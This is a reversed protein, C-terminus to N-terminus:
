TGPALQLRLIAGGDPASEITVTGHHADAIQKVISLGLGAGPMGRAASSRYFRNFVLPRDEEAIGPGRDRVEVLGDHVAVDVTSNAPSWKRANDLLNSVAREVREPVGTVLSPELRTRFSVEPSRRATRDVASRVIEDLRFESPTLDPEEGRALEVLEGVLTTMSELEERVDVILEAREREDLSGPEALLEVNARVTTIPTRLEHSADAVLQRQTRLSSELMALLEDLRTSLRSIEDRGRQGTRRSLDGTAVIDETTATLRRLPALARGSVLAGLLVAAGIGGISILVLLWRLHALNRDVGVLSASLHVVANSTAFSLVRSHVGGVETTAFGLAQGPPGATGRRRVEIQVLTLSQPVVIKGAGRRLRLRVTANSGTVKFGPPPGKLADTALKVGPLSRSANLESDVQGIMQGRDVYYVLFSAGVIAATVAIATLVTLRLRFSM